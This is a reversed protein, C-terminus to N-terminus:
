IRPPFTVVSWIAGRGASICQLPDIRAAASRDEKFRVYEGVGRCLQICWTVILVNRQSNLSIRRAM